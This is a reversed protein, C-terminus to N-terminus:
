LHMLPQQEMRICWYFSHRKKMRFKVFMLSVLVLVALVLCEKMCNSSPKVGSLETHVDEDPVSTTKHNHWRGFLYDLPLQAFSKPRLRKLRAFMTELTTLPPHAVTTRPGQRSAVIVMWARDSSQKPSVMRDILVSSKRKENDDLEVTLWTPVEAGLALALSIVGPWVEDGSAADYYKSLEYFHGKAIFSFSFSRVTVTAQESERDGIGLINYYEASSLMKFCAQGADDPTVSEYTVSQQNFQQGRLKPYSKCSVLCNRAILNRGKWIVPAM